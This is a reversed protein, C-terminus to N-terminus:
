LFMSVPNLDEEPTPQTLWGLQLPVDYLRGPGLRAWFHRLGPVFVKVSPLGIEPRTQDLVLVELGQREVRERCVQVDDRLDDTWDHPYCSATRVIGAAAQLYPHGALTATRLWHITEPDSLNACPNDPPASMLHVLMQNLETVARVLAIKADLHAGFGFMIQEMAGGTHRSLAAFVPIGLDSTLDLVWLDRQQGKLYDRLQGLYPVEFSDIEVSPRPLRNYWWLAVSDREVLELLAQLVAEELTNGAANGNSCGVCTEKGDPQPYGFYCSATPLYRVARNTLSWVASWEVEAEVDFPLPIYSFFSQRANRSEREEYQRDSFRMCANPHIADDGLDCLRARRRPENGQFFGSYRELGECLASARAQADSTGKGSSGSRLDGKLVSWNSPGRAINKGSFYVHMVGDGAVESKELMSVAGCIPSVLHKYRDITEEPRSVRYGGEQLLVKKCSKLTVPAAPRDSSAQGSGCAPCAPQRLLNHTQIDWVPVDIAKIKGELQPLEGQVVWSAVANAALGLAASFTAPTRARHTAPVGELDPRSDLYGAIPFNARLRQALCEWCATRGPWFLPGFWLQCGVPKVLLWPRGESLAQRNCARLERQLYDETLVVRYQGEDGVQVRLSRLMARFPEADLGGLATVVVTAEALRRAAVTPDIHQMMWLAAEASPVNEDHEVLFGKQELSRLTYFVEAPSVQGRLRACVDEVPRGDLWPAILEYLRGQLVTQLAESLLFLGEGPVVKMQFHPKFTPRGLM